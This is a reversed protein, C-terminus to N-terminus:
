KKRINKLIGDNIFQKIINVIEIYKEEKGIIKEIEELTIYAQKKEQLQKKIKEIEMYTTKEEKKSINNLVEM